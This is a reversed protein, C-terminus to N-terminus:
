FRLPLGKLNTKITTSPTKKKSYFTKDMIEGEDCFWSFTFFYFVEAAILYSPM